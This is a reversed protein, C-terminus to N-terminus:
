DKDTKLESSNKSLKLLKEKCQILANTRSVPFFINGGFREYIPQSFVTQQLENQVAEQIAIQESLTSM